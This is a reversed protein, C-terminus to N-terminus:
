FSFGGMKMRKTGYIPLCYGSTGMISGVNQLWCRGVSPFGADAAIKQIAIRLDVMEKQKQAIANWDPPTQAYLATLDTRLAIMKQKLPLIQKQFEANKQAQEPMINGMYCNGMVGGRGYGPGFAFASTTAILLLAIILSIIMSKRM